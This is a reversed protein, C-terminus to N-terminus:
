HLHETGKIVVTINAFRPVTSATLAFTTLVVTPNAPDRVQFTYASNYLGPYSKYDTYQKYALGAVENVTTSTSLTINLPNSNPSLNIFRIGATSDTRFPINEKVMIPDVTTAANGALFISYVDGNNFAVAKNFYPHLSDGTPWLYVTTNGALIGFQKYSQNVASDRVNSGLKVNKGGVVANTVNLSALPTLDITSKKCSSILAMIFLVILITELKRMNTKKFTM